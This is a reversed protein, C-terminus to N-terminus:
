VKFPTRSAQWCVQWITSADRNSLMNDVRNLFYKHHAPHHMLANVAAASTNAASFRAGWVAVACCSSPPSYLFFAQLCWAALLAAHVEPPRYHGIRGRIPGLLDVLAQRRLPGSPLALGEVGLLRPSYQIISQFPELWSLPMSPSNSRNSARVDRSQRAGQQGMSTQKQQAPPIQIQITPNTYHPQAAWLWHARQGACIAVALFLVLRAGGSWGLVRQAFLSSSEKMHDWVRMKQKVPFTTNNNGPTKCQALCHGGM